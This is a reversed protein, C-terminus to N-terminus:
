RVNRLSSSSSYYGYLRGLEAFFYNNASASFTYFNEFLLGIPFM